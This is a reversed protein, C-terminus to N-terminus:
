LEHLQNWLIHGAMGGLLASAGVTAFLGLAGWEAVPGRTLLNVAFAFPLAAVMGVLMAGKRTKLHPRFLGVIAGAAMGGLPYLGFLKLPTIGEPANEFGGKVGYVVAVAILMFFTAGFLGWGVGWAVNALASSRELRRKMGNSM